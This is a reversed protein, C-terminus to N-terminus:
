NEYTPYGLRKALDEGVDDFTFEDLKTEPVRVSQRVVEPVPLKIGYAKDMLATRELQLQNYQVRLWDANIKVSTLERQLADREAVVRALDERLDNVVDRSIEFLSMLSKTIWM